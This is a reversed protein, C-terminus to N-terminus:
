KTKKIINKIAGLRRSLLSAFQEVKSLKIVVLMDKDVGFVLLKEKKRFGMDKRAESPIVIQGKEGITTTGYFRRDSNPDKIKM